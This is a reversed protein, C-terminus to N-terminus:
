LESEPAGPEAVRVRKFALRLLVPTVLTTVLVMTLMVSYVGSNITGAQLGIAAAILGVEGRSVMGTGVQLAENWNFGFPKVGLGAGFVKAVIAVLLILLAFAVGSQKLAAVLDGELGVSIFFVPVFFGYALPRLKEVVPDRLDPDGALMAGLFYSGTIAAVKGFYAASFAFILGLVVAVAFPAEQGHWRRSRQVIWPVAWRGAALGVAFFLTVRVLLLWLPEGGTAGQAGQHLAIVMSLLIIGLVDDIVAAGLIANGVRSRLHGLELLTQASISVSTATLITGMFISPYTGLGFAVGLLYGGAFPLAMGGVAGVTAALGVQRMAKVDTELGALLMLFIVGLEAVDKVLHELYGAGTTFIPWHLLNLLTPGLLLGILMEGLVAAQGLRHSIAGGIKAAGIILALLLLVQLSGDL